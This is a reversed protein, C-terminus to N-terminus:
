RKAGGGHKEQVRQIAALTAFGRLLPGATFMHWPGRAVKIRCQGVPMTKLVYIISGHSIVYSLYDGVPM